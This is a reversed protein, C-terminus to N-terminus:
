FKDQVIPMSYEVTGQYMIREVPVGVNEKLQAVNEGLGPMWTTLSAMWWM